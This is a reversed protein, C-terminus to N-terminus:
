EHEKVASVEDVYTYSGEPKLARHDYLETPYTYSINDEHDPTDKVQDPDITEYFSEYDAM